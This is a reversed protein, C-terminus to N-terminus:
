AKGGGGESLCRDVLVRSFGALFGWVREAGDVM